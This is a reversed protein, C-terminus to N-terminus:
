FHGPVMERMVLYGREIMLGRPCATGAPMREPVAVGEFLKGDVDKLGTM